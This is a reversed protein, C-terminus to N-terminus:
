IFIIFPKICISQIILIPPITSFHYLTFTPQLLLNFNTHYIYLNIIENQLLLFLYLAIHSQAVVKCTKIKKDFVMTMVELNVILEVDIVLVFIDNVHMLLHCFLSLILVFFLLSCSTPQLAMLFEIDIKKIRKKKEFFFIM